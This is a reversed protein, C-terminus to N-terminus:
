AIHINCNNTLWAKADYFKFNTKDKKILGNQQLIFFDLWFNLYTLVFLAKSAFPFAIKLSIEIALFQRLDSLAGKVLICFCSRIALDHLKLQHQRLDVLGVWTASLELDIKLNLKIKNIPRTFTQQLCYKKSWFKQLVGLAFHQISWRLFEHM